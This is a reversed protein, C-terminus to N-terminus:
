TAIMRTRYRFSPNTTENQKVPPTIVAPPRVAITFAIIPFPSGSDTVTFAGPNESAANLQRWATAVRYNIGGAVQVTKILGSYNTPAVTVDVAGAADGTVVGAIWLTDAAGWSPTLNPPDNTFGATAIEVDGHQGSIRYSNHGSTASDASTFTASAGEGGDATRSELGLENADLEESWGAPATIGGFSDGLTGTTGLVALLLEGASISAPLAVDHSTVATAEVSTNTAEVVPFAM